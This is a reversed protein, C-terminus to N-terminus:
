TTPAGRTRRPPGNAFPILHATAAHAVRRDADPIRRASAEIVAAAVRVSPPLTAV